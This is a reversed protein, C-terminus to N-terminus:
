NKELGQSSRSEGAQHCVSGRWPYSPLYQKYVHNPLDQNNNMFLDRATVWDQLTTIHSFAFFFSLIDFVDNLKCHTKKQSSQRGMM